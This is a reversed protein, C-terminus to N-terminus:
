HKELSCDFLGGCKKKMVEIAREACVFMEKPSQITLGVEDESKSEAKDGNSELEDEFGQM